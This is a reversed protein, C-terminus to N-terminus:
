AGSKAELAKEAIARQARFIYEELTEKDSFFAFLGGNYPRVGSEAVLTKLYTGLRLGEAQIRASTGEYSIKDTLLAHAEQGKWFTDWDSFVGDQAEQSLKFIDTLEKEMNEGARETVLQEHLQVSDNDITVELTGEPASDATELTHEVEVEAPIEASAEINETDINESTESAHEHIDGLAKELWEPREKGAADFAHALAENDGAPVDSANNFIFHDPNGDADYGVSLTDGEHVLGLEHLPIETGDSLTASSSAWLENAQEKTLVGSEVFHERANWLSQGKNIEFVHEKLQEATAAMETTAATAETSETAKETATDSTETATDAHQELGEATATTAELAQKASASIKDVGETAAETAKETATKVMDAGADSHEEFLRNAAESLATENDGVLGEASGGFWGQEAVWEGIEPIYKFALGITGSAVLAGVVGAKWTAAREGKEKFSKELKKFLSAGALVRKTSIACMALIPAVTLPVASASAAIGLGVFAAGYLFKKKPSLQDYQRAMGEVVKRVRSDPHEIEIDIEEGQAVSEELLAEAREEPSELEEESSGSEREPFATKDRYFDAAYRFLLEAYRLALVEDFSEDVERADSANLYEKEADEIQNHWDEELYVGQAALSTGRVIGNHSFGYRDEMATADMDGLEKLTKIRLSRESESIDEKEKSDVDPLDPLAEFIDDPSMNIQRADLADGEFSTNSSIDKELNQKKKEFQEELKGGKERLMNVAREHRNVYEESIEPKSNNMSSFAKLEWLFESGVVQVFFPDDKLNHEKAYKKVEDVLEYMQKIMVNGEERAIQVREKLKELREMEGDNSDEAVKTAGNPGTEIQEKRKPQQREEGSELVNSREGNRM